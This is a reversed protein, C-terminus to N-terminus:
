LTNTGRTFWDRLGRTPKKTPSSQTSLLADREAIVAHLDSLLADKEAPEFVSWDVTNAVPSRYSEPKRYGGSPWEYFESLYNDLHLLSVQDGRLKRIALPLSTQDRRSYEVIHSFWHEMAHKVERDNHRRALIAGWVPRANKYGPFEKEAVELQQLLLRDVDFGLASVTKLVDLMRFRFSHFIAGFVIEPKPVLHNWLSVPDTLLRVSTDIYLSRNYEGLYLHPLVKPHRSSRPSDNPLVPKVRRVTWGNPRVDDQDTFCVYDVDSSEPVPNLEAPYGMLVTYVVLRDSRAASKM